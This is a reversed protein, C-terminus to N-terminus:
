FHVRRKSKFRSRRHSRRHTRRTKKARKKKKVRKKTRRKTRGGALAQPCNLELIRTMEQYRMVKQGPEVEQCKGYDIMRLGLRPHFYFHAYPDDRNYLGAEFVLRRIFECFIAQMGDNGAFVHKWGNEEDYFDMQVFYFDDEPIFGAAYIQPALNFEAARQQLRVEQEAAAVFEDVPHFERRYMIKIATLSNPYERYVFGYAGSNQFEYAQGKFLFRAPAEEGMRGIGEFLQERKRRKGRRDDRSERKAAM